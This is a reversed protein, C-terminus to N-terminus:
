KIRSLEQYLAEDMPTKLGAAALCEMLSKSTPDILFLYLEMATEYSQDEAVTYLQIAALMSVAYSVYYVSQEVTVHRWYSDVDTLNNKLWEAGGYRSKVEAMVGNARASTTIGEEYCLQEFEDVMTSVIVTGLSDYLCYAYITEAVEESLVTSLYYWFLWENGQSQVEALDMHIAENGNVRYSYYHGLEHVVTEVGQYGPGFYCIPRRLDHPYSTFAGEHATSADAFFSNGTEFLTMMEAAREEGFTAIYDGVYDVSFADYDARELLEAIFIKDAVPLADYRTRFAIRAQECLPVLYSRVYQRMEEIEAKGYDRRFEKEYAYVWYNEYGMLEAIRNNNNVLQVYYDASGNYFQAESLQRYQVMIQDNAKQLATVEGSFGRMEEFDAASWGEFFRDRLPSDSVDMRKCLQMYADYADASAESAFQYDSLCKADKTDMCFWLYAIQAQTVIRYYANVFRDEIASLEEETSEANLFADECEKVLLHFSSVDEESLSFVLDAPIPEPEDVSTEKSGEDTADSQDVPEKSIAGTSEGVTEVRYLFRKVYRKIDTLSCSTLSCVMICITLVMSLLRLRKKM